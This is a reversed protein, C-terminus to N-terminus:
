SQNRPQFGNKQILDAYPFPLARNEIREIVDDPSWIVLYELNKYEAPLIEGIREEHEGDWLYWIGANGTKFNYATSIFTPHKFNYPVFNGVTIWKGSNIAVYLPTFIPPFLYGAKKILNIDVQGNTFYDFVVIMTGFKDKCTYQAFAKKGSSIHIEYIDGIKAM